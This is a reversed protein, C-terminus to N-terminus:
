PPTGSCKCSYTLPLENSLLNDCQYNMEIVFELASARQYSLLFYSHCGQGNVAERGLLYQTNHNGRILASIDGNKESTNKRNVNNAAM